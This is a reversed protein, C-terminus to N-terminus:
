NQTAASAVRLTTFVVNAFINDKEFGSAVKTNQLAVRHVVNEPKGIRLTGRKESVSSLLANAAGTGTQTLQILPSMKISHACNHRSGVSQLM